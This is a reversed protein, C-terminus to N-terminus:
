EGFSGTTAIVDAGDSIMRDLGHHLRGVDVTAISHIDGADDTAFAPMMAMLGGLDSASLM